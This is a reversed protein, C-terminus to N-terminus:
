NKKGQRKGAGADKGRSRRMEAMQKRQAPTLIPEIKKMSETRIARLKTRKQEPTLSKDARVKMSRERSQDMIPKIRKMQAETLGFNKAMMAMSNRRAGRKQAGPKKAGKRTGKQAASSRGTEAALVPVSLAPLTSAGIAIAASLFLSRSFKM